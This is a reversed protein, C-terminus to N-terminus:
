PRGEREDQRAPWLLGVLAESAGGVLAGVVVDSPYHASKPVQGLAVLGAAALAPARYHPFERAFGQAVAVAGASHGSPFSTYTKATRSGAKPKAQKGHAASRPRTRDIRAKVFDKAATAVEHALLMRMGARVLRGDGLALGGAIVAASVLRLQPQDGAKAVVSLAQVPPARRHEALANSIELDVASLRDAAKRTRKGMAAFGGSLRKTGCRPRSPSPRPHRHRRRDGPVLQLM